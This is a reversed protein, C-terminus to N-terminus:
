LSFQNQVLLLERGLGGWHIMLRNINDGNVFTYQTGATLEGLFEFAGVTPFLSLPVTKSHILTAM